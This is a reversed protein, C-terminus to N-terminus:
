CDTATYVNYAEKLLLWQCLSLVDVDEEEQPLVAVIPPLRALALLALVAKQKQYVTASALGESM